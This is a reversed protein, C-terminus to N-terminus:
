LKIEVTQISGPRMYEFRIPQLNLLAYNRDEPTEWFEKLFPIRNFVDAKVNKDEVIRAQCEARITGKGQSKELLLCFETKPNQKIQKIKADDSGTAVFFKGQFYMLTVPRVRPQDRETTALFIHQQQGFNEWIEQKLENNQNKLNKRVSRKM